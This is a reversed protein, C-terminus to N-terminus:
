HDLTMREGDVGMLQSDTQLSSSDGLGGEVGFTCLKGM